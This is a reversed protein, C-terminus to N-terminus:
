SAARLFVPRGRTSAAASVKAEAELGRDTTRIALPHGSRGQTVGSIPSSAPGGPAARSARLRWRERPTTGINRMSFCSRGAMRAVARAAPKETREGSWDPIRAGSIWM